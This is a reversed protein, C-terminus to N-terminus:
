HSLKKSKPQEYKAIIEEQTKAVNYTTAMIMGNIIRPDYLEAMKKTNRIEEPLKWYQPQGPIYKAVIYDGEEHSVLSNESNAIMSQSEDIKGDDSYAWSPIVKAQEGIPIQIAVMFEQESPDKTSITMPDIGIDNLNVDYASMNSVKVPWREGVTGTIVYPKVPSTTWHNQELINFGSKIAYKTEVGDIKFVKEEFGELLTRGETLEYCALEVEVEYQAKRCWMFGKPLESNQM